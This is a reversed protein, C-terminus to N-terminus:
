KESLRSTLRPGVRRGSERRRSFRKSERVCAELKQKRITGLYSDNTVLRHLFGVGATTLLTEIVERFDDTIGADFHGMLTELNKALEGSGLLMRRGLRDETGHLPAHGRDREIGDIARQPHKPIETEDGRETGLALANSEVDVDVTVM